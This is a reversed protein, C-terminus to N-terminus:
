QGKECYAVAAKKLEAYVAKVESIKLESIM